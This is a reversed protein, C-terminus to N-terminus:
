ALNEDLEDIGLDLIGEVAAIRHDCRQGQRNKDPYKKPIEHVQKRNIQQRGDGGQEANGVQAAHGGGIQIRGKAQRDRHQQQQIVVADLHLAGAMEGHFYQRMGEALPEHREIEQQPDDLIQGLGNREAQTQESVEVGAFQDEDQDRQQGPPDLEDQAPRPRHEVDQDDGQLREDEHHQGDHIQAHGVFIM